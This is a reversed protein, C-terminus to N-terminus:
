NAYKKKVVDAVKDVDQYLLLADNAVFFDKQSVAELYLVHIDPNCTKMVEFISEVESQGKKSISKLEGGRLERIVMKEFTKNNEMSIKTALTIEIAGNVFEVRGRQVAKLLSTFNDAVDAPEDNDHYENYFNNVFERAQEKKIMNEM